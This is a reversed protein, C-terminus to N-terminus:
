SPMTPAAHANWWDLARGVRLKSNDEGDICRGTAYASMRSLVPLNHCVNFSGRLYHLGARFCKTRDAILDDATWGDTTTGAGVRIQMLCVSRNHDGRRTGDDVAKRFSSEFSAVSIMFLATQARGSPGGFIPTESEDFAVTIADSAISEYRALTEDRPEANASPPVWASMAAILYPTLQLM